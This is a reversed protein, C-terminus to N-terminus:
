LEASVDQSPMVRFWIAQLDGVIDVSISRVEKLSQNSVKKSIVKAHKLSLGTCIPTVCISKEHLLPEKNINFESYVAQLKM